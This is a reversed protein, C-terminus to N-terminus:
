RGRRAQAVLEAFLAAQQADDTATDEPHWQVGVAWGSAEITAAEAVGDASRAVVDIGKGLRDLAQHHYCSVSLRDSSFGFRAGDREITVDHRLDRHRQPLDQVLTGGRLVNVVHLGRCIALVPMGSELAYEASQLDAADQLEDVDYIGEAREDQGYRRPDIDGGGPLLLGDVRRLREEWDANAVPLLTVPDGGADWVAELLARATVVARYRLASTTAACRGVIAIKPRYPQNM